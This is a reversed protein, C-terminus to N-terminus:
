ELHQPIARVQPFAQAQPWAGLDNRESSIGKVVLLLRLKSGFPEARPFLQFYVIHALCLMNVMFLPEELM